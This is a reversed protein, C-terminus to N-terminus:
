TRTFAPPYILSTVCRSKMEEVEQENLYATTHAAIEEQKRWDVLGIDGVDRDVNFRFYPFQKDTDTARSTRQLQQHVDESSTVLSSLANAMTILALVGRPFNRATKRGPVFSVIDPIFSKVQQFLSHEIDIDDDLKTTDIIGVAKQRGTGISVLCFHKGTPWLRQAENLAVQSPNNYGLGGDVYKMGPPPTGISIEKFFSPAASTARAAQWIACKSARAGKGSYSRFVAPPGDAIVAMKAVVFTPCVRYLANSVTSMSCDESSLRDKIIAKLASELINHDFRCKDDGVPIKGLVVQDIKFVEKSLNLYAEICENV